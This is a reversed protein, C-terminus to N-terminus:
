KVIEPLNKDFAKLREDPMFAAKAFFPEANVPLHKAASDFALSHSDTNDRAFIRRQLTADAAPTNQAHGPIPAGFLLLAALVRLLFANM